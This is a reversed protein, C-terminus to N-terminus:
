SLNDTWREVHVRKHQWGAALPIRVGGARQERWVTFLTVLHLSRRFYRPATDESRFRRGGIRISGSTTRITANRGSLRHGSDLDTKEIWRDRKKKATRRFRFRFLFLFRGRSLYFRAGRKDSSPLISNPSAIDFSTCVSSLTKRNVISYTLSHYMDLFVTHERRRNVYDNPQVITISRPLICKELFFSQINRLIKFTSSSLFIFLKSARTPSDVCPERQRRAM